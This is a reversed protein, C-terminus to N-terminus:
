ENVCCAGRRICDITEVVQPRGCTDRNFSRVAYWSSRFGPGAAEALRHFQFFKIGTDRQLADILDTREALTGTEAM